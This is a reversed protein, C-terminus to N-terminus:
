QTTTLTKSTTSALRALRKLIETLPKVEDNEQSFPLHVRHIVVGLLPEQCEVTVPLLITGLPLTVDMLEPVDITGPICKINMVDSILSCSDQSFMKDGCLRLFINPGTKSAVLAPYAIPHEGEKQPSSLEEDSLDLSIIRSVQSGVTNVENFFYPKICPDILSLPTGILLDKYFHILAKHITPKPLYQSYAELLDLFVMYQDGEQRARIMSSRRRFSSALRQYPNADLKTLLRTHQSHGLLLFATIGLAITALYHQTRLSIRGQNPAQVINLWGDLCTSYDDFPLEAIDTSKVIFGYMLVITRMNLPTINHTVFYTPVTDLSARLLMESCGLLILVVVKPNFPYIGQKEGSLAYHNFVQTSEKALEEIRTNESFFPQILRRLMYQAPGVGPVHLVSAVAAVTADTRSLGAREGTYISLVAAANVVRRSVLSLSNSQHGFALSFLSM